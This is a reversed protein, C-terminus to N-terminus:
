FTYILLFLLANLKYMKKSRIMSLLPHTTYYFKELSIKHINWHFYYCVKELLHHPYWSVELCDADKHRMSKNQVKSLVMPKGQWAGWQFLHGNELEMKTKYNSVLMESFAHLCDHITLPDNWRPLKLSEHDVPSSLFPLNQETFPDLPGM